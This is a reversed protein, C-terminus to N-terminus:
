GGSLNLRLLIEALEGASEPAIMPEVPFSRPLELGPLAARAADSVLWKGTASAVRRPTTPDDALVVRVCDGPPDGAITRIRDGFRPDACLVTVGGDSSARQLANIFAPNLRVVAFAAGIREAVERVEAAHFATTALLHPRAPDAPAVEEQLRDAHVVCTHFGFDDRLERRFSEMQDDTSEVFTCRVERETTCLRVFDALEPVPIRRVWAERLVGAMWRATEALVGGDMREQEALFVGSRGRVVVLGEAELAAYAAAVARLDAGSEESWERYSPLRTGDRLRGMHIGTVIWERIRRTLDDGAGGKTGRRM